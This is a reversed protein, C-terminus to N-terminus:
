GEPILVQAEPLLVELKAKLAAKAEPDGHVIRIEGPGETIGAVFRLLDDQGAHASYGGVQHVRARIAYRQGELEVWGGRPGYNLIDRGPTGAAQYGVFLVDNRADDLMAQLYNM